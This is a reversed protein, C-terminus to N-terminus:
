LNQTIKKKVAEIEKEEYKKHTWTLKFNDTKYRPIIHIHAHNIVQEAAEHNSMLINYGDPKLNKEIMRAIKQVAEMIKGIEKEPIDILTEYHKKPIVLAHGKNAPNIDLFSLVEKDEYIKTSPIEGKIIKCFICAESAHESIRSKQQICDM